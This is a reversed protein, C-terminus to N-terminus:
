KIRNATSVPFSVLLKAGRIKGAELGFRPVLKDFTQLKMSEVKFESAMKALMDVRKACGM